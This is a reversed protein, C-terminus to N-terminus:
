RGDRQRDKACHNDSNGHQDLPPRGPKQGLVILSVQEHNRLQGRTCRKLAGLRHQLLHSLDHHALRLRLGHERDGAEVQKRAHRLAATRPSSGGQTAVCNWWRTRCISDTMARSRALDSPMATESMKLLRCVKRPPNYRLSKLRNPRAYRTVASACSLARLVGS